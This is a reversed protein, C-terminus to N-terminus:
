IDKYRALDPQILVDIKSHRLTPDTDEDGSLKNKCINIHRIYEFGNDHSKGIGIILDAEAQIATKANAVNDMNLYKKGEGSADAQNVALVPCYEKALERGWAFAQGLRLDERDNSFGKIKSLQDFVILAPKYEKCLEEVKRKHISANDYIKINTQETYLEQYKNIDSAIEKLSYGFFAQFIRFKVKTGQEENNFWLIPNRSQTAFHSIESALFTTKGTEPRAFIVGFDGKRLSGVARNLSHLRWRIGPDRIQGNYIDVFSDEVFPSEQENKEDDEFEQLFGAIKEDNARGEAYEHFAQSLLSATNRKKIQNLTAIELALSTDQSEILKLFIEYHNGLNVQVWLAYEEFSITNKSLEMISDLAKFLYFLEKHEEKTIKIHHRYKVYNEYTFLSKLLYIYNM